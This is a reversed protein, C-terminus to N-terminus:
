CGARREAERELDITQEAIFEEAASKATEYSPRFGSGGGRRSQATWTWAAGKRTLTVTWMGIKFAENM